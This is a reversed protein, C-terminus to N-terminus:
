HGRETLIYKNKKKSEQRVVLGSLIVNRVLYASATHISSKLMLHKYKHQRRKEINCAKLQDSFLVVVCRCSVFRVFDYMHM